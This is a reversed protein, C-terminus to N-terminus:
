IETYTTLDNELKICKYYHYTIKYSKYKEIFKIISIKFFYYLYILNLILFPIGHLLFCIKLNLILNYVTKKGISLIIVIIISLISYLYTIYCSLDNILERNLNLLSHLSYLPIVSLPFFFILLINIFLFYNNKKLIFINSCQKFNETCNIKDIFYSKDTINPFDHTYSSINDNDNDNYNYFSYYIVINYLIINIFIFSIIHNYYKIINCINFNFSSTKTINLDNRCVPCNTIKNYQIYNLCENCVLSDRCQCLKYLLQENLNILTEYCIVCKMNENEGNEGNDGNDCNDGNNM